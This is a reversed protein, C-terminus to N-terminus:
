TKSGYLFSLLSDVNDFSGLLPFFIGLAFLVSFSSGHLIQLVAMGLRWQQEQQTTHVGRGHGKFGGGGGTVWWSFLFDKWERANVEHFQFKIVKNTARRRQWSLTLWTRAPKECIDLDGPKGGRLFLMRKRGQFASGTFWKGWLM